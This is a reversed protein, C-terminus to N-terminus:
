TADCKAELYVDQASGKLYLPIRERVVIDPWHCITIYVEFEKIFTELQNINGDFPEGRFKERFEGINVHVNSIEPPDTVRQENTNVDSMIEQCLVTIETTESINEEEDTSEVDSIPDLETRKPDDSNEFENTLSDSEFLTEVSAPKKHLERNKKARQIEEKEM